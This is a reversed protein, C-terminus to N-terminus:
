IEFTYLARLLARFLKKNTDEVYYTHHLNRATCPIADRAEFHIYNHFLDKVFICGVLSLRTALLIVFGARLLYGLSINGCAASFEVDALKLNLNLNINWSIWILSM